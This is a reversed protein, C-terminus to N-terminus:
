AEEDEFWDWNAPDYLGSDKEFRIMIRAIKKMEDANSANIEICERVYPKENKITEVMENKTKDREKRALEVQLLTLQLDLYTEQYKDLNANLENITNTINEDGNDDALEILLVNLERLIDIQDLVPHTKIWVYMAEIDNKDRIFELLKERYQM